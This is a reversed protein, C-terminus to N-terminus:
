LQGMSKLLKLMIMPGMTGAQMRGPVNLLNTDGFQEDGSFTSADAGFNANGATDFPGTKPLAAKPVVDGQSDGWPPLPQRRQPGTSPGGPQTQTQLMKDINGPATPGGAAPDIPPPVMPSGNQADPNANGAPAGTMPPKPMMPGRSTGMMGAQPMAGTMGAGAIQPQRRIAM